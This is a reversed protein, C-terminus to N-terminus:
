DAAGLPRVTIGAQDFAARVERVFALAMPNDGHVCMSDPVIELERGTIAEVRHERVMRVARQIAAEKDHIVAGPQSRPVLTGDEQYARDAFIEGRVRVGVEKGATIWQSNALGLVILEPDVAAVGECVARALALDKAAMNYLAGHAKVHQLRAGHAQVFAKLAGVQYIVYARAEAPTVAMNRRGFGMLDPFGPHAGIGVGAGAAAAVTREMVLPDGAHWGCAINASSVCQIIEEDMGITYSGFSEGLDSNLDICYM